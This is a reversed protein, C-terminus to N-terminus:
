SGLQKIKSKATKAKKGDNELTLYQKYTEVAKEKMGKKEYCVALNYVSASFRPDVDVAKKYQALASDVQGLAMYGDGLSDYSNADDPALEVYKKFLSISESTRKENLYLYGLQHYARWNNPDVKIADRYAQETARADKEYRAIAAEAMHGEYADIKMVEAAQARAKSVSGGIIGPAQLYYQMLAVRYRVTQPQLEVAQRFKDKVKGALRMKSFINAEQAQQGYARGLEFHYEANREDLEVAEEMHEVAGDINGLNRFMLRGLQFHVAANKPEKKLISEFVSKAEGFRKQEVLKAGDEITSQALVLGPIVFLLIGIIGSTMPIFRTM